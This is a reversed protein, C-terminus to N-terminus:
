TGAVRGPGAALVGGDAGPTLHCKPEECLVTQSAGDTRHPDCWVWHEATVSM